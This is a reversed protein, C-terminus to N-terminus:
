LEFTAELVVRGTRESLRGALARLATAFRSLTRRERREPLRHSERERAQKGAGRAANMLPNLAAM